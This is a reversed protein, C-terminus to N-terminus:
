KLNVLPPDWKIKYRLGIVPHDIKLIAKVLTTGDSEAEKNPDHMRRREKDIKYNWDDPLVVEKRFKVDKFFAPFM